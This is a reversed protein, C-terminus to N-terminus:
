LAPLLQEHWTADLARSNLLDRCLECHSVHEECITLESSSCKGDALKRLWEENLCQLSTQMTM